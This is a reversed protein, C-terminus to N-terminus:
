HTQMKKLEIRLGINIFPLSSRGSVLTIFKLHSTVEPVCPVSRICNLHPLTHITVEYIIFPAAHLYDKKLSGM